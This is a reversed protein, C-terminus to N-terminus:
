KQAILRIGIVARIPLWGAVRRSMRHPLLRLLWELIVAPFLPSVFYHGGAGILIHLRKFGVRRFLRALERNTYEKLHLGTAEQDDFFGSIDSPGYLRNPTVCVYRGGPKLAHHIQRLQEVADDPHLHEMLQHSYALDVSDHAVPLSVGDSIEFKLNKPWSKNWGKKVVESVDVAVAQKVLKSVAVSVSCDGPGVELFTLNKKLFPALLKKQISVDHERSRFMESKLWPVRSYLEDYVISYLGRREDANASRLRQALSKEIEYHQRLEPTLRNTRKFKVLM